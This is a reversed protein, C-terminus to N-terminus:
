RIFRLYIVSAVPGYIIGHNCVFVSPYYKENVFEKGSVKLRLFPRIFFAIIKVGFRVRYKQILLKNLNKSIRYDKQDGNIYNLLKQRNRRDLPQRLAFYISILMFLVPLQVMIKRAISPIEMNNVNPMVFTWVTMIVLTVLSSFVLAVSSNLSNRISMEEEGIERDELIAVKIFDENFRTLSSSILAIAFGLLLSWFVVRFSTGNLFVGISGAVWLAAGWFFLHLGITFKKKGLIKSSVFYTAVVMSLWLFSAIYVKYSFLPLLLTIFCFYMFIGLYFATKSYFSMNRFIEYSSIGTMNDYRVPKVVRIFSKPFIMDVIVNIAAFSLAIFSVYNAKPMKFFVPYLCMLAIGALIVISYIARNLNRAFGSTGVNYLGTQYYITLSLLMLFVAEGFFPNGLMYHSAMMCFLLEVFYIYGYKGVM